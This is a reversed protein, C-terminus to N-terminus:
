LYCPKKEAAMSCSLASLFLISSPPERGLLILVFFLCPSALQYQGRSLPAGYLCPWSSQSVQGLDQPELPLDGPAEALGSQDDAVVTIRRGLVFCIPALRRQTWSIPWPGAARSGPCVRSRAFHRKERRRCRAFQQSPGLPKPLGSM